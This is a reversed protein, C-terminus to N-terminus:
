KRDGRAANTKRWSMLDKRFRKVNLGQSACYAALPLKSRVFDIFVREEATSRTRVPGMVEELHRGVRQSAAKVTKVELHAYGATTRRDAHGLVGGIVELGHGRNVAVSAFSHRLDHLRLDAHGIKNRLRNWVPAIHSIPMPKGNRAFVFDGTQPLDALLILVPRTLWITKPGAKADPLAARNQDIYSWRLGLAEGRRCGTLLLFRVFAVEMPYAAAEKAMARGLQRYDEPALYHATFDSRHRRLGACPNSGSKRLGVLEAHRMLDSLAAMARNRTGESCTMEQRWALVDSRGIEDIRVRGFRPILVRTVYHTQTKLTTPKWRGACDRLYRQAFASFGADLAVVDPGSVMADLYSRAIQRAQEESVLSCDGLTTRVSKSGHRTQVLWTRKTPRIRRGLGPVVEDWIVQDRTAKADAKRPKTAGSERQKIQM